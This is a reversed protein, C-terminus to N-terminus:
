EKHGGARAVEGQPEGGSRILGTEALEEVPHRPEPQWPWRHEM